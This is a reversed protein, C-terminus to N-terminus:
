LSYAKYNLQLINKGKYIVTDLLNEIYNTFYNKSNKQVLILLLKTVDIVNLPM